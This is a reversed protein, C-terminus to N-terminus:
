KHLEKFINCMEIFNGENLSQTEMINELMQLGKQCLEKREDVISDDHFLTRSVPGFVYMRELRVISEDVNTHDEPPRTNRPTINPDDRGFDFFDNQEDAIRKIFKIHDATLPIDLSDIPESWNSKYNMTEIVKTRDYLGSIESEDIVDNLTPEWPPPIEFDQYIYRGGESDYGTTWTYIMDSHLHNIFTRIPIPIESQPFTNFWARLERTDEESNNMTDVSSMRSYNNKKNLNFLKKNFYKCM